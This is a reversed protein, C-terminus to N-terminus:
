DKTEKEAEPEEEPRIHAVGKGHCNWCFLRSRYYVGTGECAPCTEYPAIVYVTKYGNCVPCNSLPSLLKFPDKGKGKCFACTIREMEPLITEASKRRRRKVMKEM